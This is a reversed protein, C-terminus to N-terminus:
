SFGDVSLLIILFFQGTKRAKFQALFPNHYGIAMLCFFSAILICQIQMSSLFPLPNTLSPVHGFSSKIGWTNRTFGDLPESPDTREVSFPTSSHFRFANQTEKRPYRQNRHLLFKFSKWANRPKEEGAPLPSFDGGREVVAAMDRQRLSVPVAM